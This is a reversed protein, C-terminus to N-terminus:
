KKERIEQKPYGSRGIMHISFWFFIAGLGKGEHIPEAAFTTPTSGTDSTM